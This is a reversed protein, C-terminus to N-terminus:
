KDELGKLDKDDIRITTEFPVAVGNALYGGFIEMVQWMQIRTYGDEDKVPYKPKVFEKGMSRNLEDHQHYYIFDGMETIKIMVYDNINFVKV